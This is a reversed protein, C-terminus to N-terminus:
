ARVARQMGKLVGIKYPKSVDANVYQSAAENHIRKYQAKVAHIIGADLPQLFATANPALKQIAINSLKMDSTKHSSVNDLLFYFM